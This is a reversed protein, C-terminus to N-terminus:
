YSGKCSAPETMANLWCGAFFPVSDRAHTRAHTHTHTHIDVGCRYLGQPAVDQLYAGVEKTFECAMEVSDASPKELMLILMELALVQSACVRARVSVDVCFACVCM